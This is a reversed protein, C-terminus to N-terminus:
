KCFYFLCMFKESQIYYKTNYLRKFLKDLIKM